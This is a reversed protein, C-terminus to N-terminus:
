PQPSFCKSFSWLPNSQDFKCQPRTSVALRAIENAYGSGPEADGGCQAWSASRAGAKDLAGFRVIWGHCIPPPSPPPRDATPPDWPVYPRPRFLTGELRTLRAWTSALLAVPATKGQRNVIRLTVSGKRLREIEVGPLQMFMYPDQFLARKVMRKQPILDSLPGFGADIFLKQEFRAQGIQGREYDSRQEASGKPPFTYPQTAASSAVLALFAIIKM